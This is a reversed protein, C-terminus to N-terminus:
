SALLKSAITQAEALQVEIEARQSTLTSIQADLSTITANLNTVLSMMRDYLIPLEAETVGLNNLVTLLEPKLQM